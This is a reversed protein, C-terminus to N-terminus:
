TPEGARRHADLWRDLEAIEYVVITPAVRIYAPGRDGPDDPGRARMKRLLSASLGVYRAAEPPKLARRPSSISSM